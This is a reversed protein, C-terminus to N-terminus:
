AQKNSWSLSSILPYLGGICRGKLLTRRTHTDKICFFYPHFEIFVNNDRTFRHVSVLNKATQPVHLIKNLYLNKKRPISLLNVLMLLQWVQVTQMTFKSMVM